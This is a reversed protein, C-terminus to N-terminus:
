AADKDQSKFYDRITIRTGKSVPCCLVASRLTNANLDMKESAKRWGVSDVLTRLKLRLDEELIASKPNRQYEM